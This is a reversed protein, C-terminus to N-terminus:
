RAARGPSGGRQGAAAPRTPRKPEEDGQRPLEPGDQITM